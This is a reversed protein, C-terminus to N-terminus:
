SSAASTCSRALDDLASTVREASRQEASLGRLAGVLDHMLGRRSDDSIRKEMVWRASRLNVVSITSVWTDALCDLKEPESTDPAELRALKALVDNRREQSLHEEILGSLLVGLVTASAEHIPTLDSFAADIARLVGPHDRISGFLATEPGRGTLECAAELVVQRYTRRARRVRIWQLM